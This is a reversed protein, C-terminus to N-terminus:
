ARFGPAALVQRIVIGAGGSCGRCANLLVDLAGAPSWAAQYCQAARVGAVAWVLWGPLRDPAPPHMTLSLQAQTAINCPELCAWCARVCNGTSDDHASPVHTFGCACPGPIAVRRYSVMALRAAAHTAAVAIMVAPAPAPAAPAPRDLPRPPACWHRM